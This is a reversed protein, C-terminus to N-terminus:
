LQEVIFEASKNKIYEFNFQATTNSRSNDFEFSIKDQAKLQFVSTVSIGVDQVDLVVLGSTNPIACNATAKRAENILISLSIFHSDGPDVFRTLLRTTVRYYGDKLVFLDGQANVFISNAGVNLEVTKWDTLKRTANPAVNFAAEFGTAKFISKEPVKWTALGAADSTLVKGTGANDTIKVGELLATDAKVNGAVQLKQTPTSIGIGVNQCYIVSHIITAVFLFSVKKM